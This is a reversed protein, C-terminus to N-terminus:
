QATETEFRYEKELPVWPLERRQQAIEDALRTHEKERVLLPARAALWEERTGIRHKTMIHSRKKIHRDRRRSSVAASSRHTEQADVTM